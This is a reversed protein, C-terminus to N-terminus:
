MSLAPSVTPGVSASRHFPVVHRMWGVGFGGAGPPPARVPTAQGAGDSQVATPALTSLEPWPRAVSASRQFPVRQLMWCVGLGAPTGPTRRSPTAQVEGEAQVATPPENPFALRVSRHFPVLHAIWAEGLGTPCIKSRM